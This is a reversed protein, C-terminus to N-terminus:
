RSEVVEDDEMEMPEIDDDADVDIDDVPSTSRNVEFYLPGLRPLFPDLSMPRDLVDGDVVDDAMVKISELSKGTSISTANSSM